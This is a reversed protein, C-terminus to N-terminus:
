SNWEVTIASDPEGGIDLGRQRAEYLMEELATDLSGSNARVFEVRRGEGAIVGVAEGHALQRKAKVYAKIEAVLEDDTFFPRGYINM